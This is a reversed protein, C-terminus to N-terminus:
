DCDRAAASSAQPRVLFVTSEEFIWAVMAPPM